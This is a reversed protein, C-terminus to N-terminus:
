DRIWQYPDAVFQGTANDRWRSVGIDYYISYGYMEEYYSISADYEVFVAEALDAFGLDLFDMMMAQLAETNGTHRADYGYSSWEEGLDQYQELTIYGLSVADKLLGM